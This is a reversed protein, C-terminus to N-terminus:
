YLGDVRFSYGVGFIYTPANRNLGFGIHFDIQQTNTIRYGGGSNFLHSTGGVLPFEGVYEAFLFAREGFRREIVLTSQNTYRNVPDAPIFFNTVMGTIAWGHGIEVSWPFQLYPQAGPGAISGAGTPLGVGTTMSLDFKEPIPSIQWKVAPALNTFGSAGLGHFATVNSPLDVLVELCRAIGLRLRSNTGDFVQAGDRRSLNIGNESQFSGVPLVISSNTIDPRDTEIPNSSRTCEEAGATFAALSALYGLLSAMLSRM